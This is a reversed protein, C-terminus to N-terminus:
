RASAVSCLGNSGSSSPVVTRPSLRVAETHAAQGVVDQFQQSLNGRDRPRTSAKPNVDHCTRSSRPKRTLISSSSASHFHPFIAASACAQDAAIARSIELPSHAGAEGVKPNLVVGLPRGCGPCKWLAGHPYAACDLLAAVTEALWCLRSVCPTNPTLSKQRGM